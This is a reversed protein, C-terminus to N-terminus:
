FVTQLAVSYVNQKGDVEDDVNDIQFKIASGSMVDWRTGLSFVDRKDAQSAAVQNLGGILPLTTPAVPIGSVLNAADDDSRAATVHFLWDGTRVGVMVYERINKALMSNEAEFEVHEAAAVFTGTDITLGIQAFTAKDEDVLVNTKVSSLSAPFVGLFQNLTLGTQSDIVAGGVDVTLDAQHYAARLTWWGKGLTAAIGAQNRTEADTPAGGMMFEDSFGGYYAQFTTDFSGLPKTIYIDVGDVNNFPLYYVERPPTIWGYAYGVDLFDSYLYFPTRLRGARLKISDTAQLTLYAWEANVDYDGSSRAILQTTATIKESVQGSVQLGLLNNDFTLDEEYGGYNNGSEFEDDVFGGGVSLFGTVNVDAAQVIPAVLCAAIALAMYNKKCISHMRNM